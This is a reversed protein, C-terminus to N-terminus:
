LNNIIFLNNYFVFFYQGFYLYNNKILGPMLFYLGSLSPLINLYIFKFIM